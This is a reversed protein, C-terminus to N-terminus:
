EKAENNGFSVGMQDFVRKEHDILDRLERLGKYIKGTEIFKNVKDGISKASPCAELFESLLTKFQKLYYEEHEPFVYACQLAFYTRAAPTVAEDDNLIERDRMIAAENHILLIANAGGNEIVAGNIIIKSGSKFDLKLPM